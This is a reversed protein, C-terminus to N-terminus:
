LSRNHNASPPTTSGSGTTRNLRDRLRDMLVKDQGDLRPTSAPQVTRWTADYPSPIDLDGGIDVRDALDLFWRRLGPVQEPVPFDEDKLRRINRFSEALESRGLQTVQKLDAVDLMQDMPVVRSIRALDDYDRHRYRDYIALIKNAGLELPDMTPGYRTSVADLAITDRCMQIKVIARPRGGKSVSKEQVLWSAIENTSMADQDEAVEYNAAELAARVRETVETFNEEPRMFADLDMTTREVLGHAIQAGGGALILRGAGASLMIIAAREQAKSLSM